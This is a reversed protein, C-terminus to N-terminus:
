CWRGRYALVCALCWMTHTSNGEDIARSYLEVARGLDKQMGDWGKELLLALNSMAGVHSGQNIARFYLEAARGEDKDVGCTGHVLVNWLRFMAEVNGSDVARNFLEMARGIDKEARGRRHVARKCSMAHREHQKGRRNSKFVTGGSSWPGERGKGGRKLCFTLTSWRTWMVVKM